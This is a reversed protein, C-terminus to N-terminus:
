TLLTGASATRLQHAAEEILDLGSKGSERPRRSKMEARDLSSALARRRSVFGAASSSTRRDLFLLVVCASHGLRMRRYAESRCLGSAKFLGAERDEEPLRRLSGSGRTRYRM